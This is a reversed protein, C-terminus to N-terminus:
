AVPSITDGLDGVAVRAHDDADVAYYHDNLGPTAHGVTLRLDLGVGAAYRGIARLGELTAHASFIDFATVHHRLHELMTIQTAGSAIAGDVIACRRFDSPQGVAGLGVVLGEEFHVRKAHPHLNGVPKLWGLKEALIRGEREIGVVLTAPDRILQVDADLRGYIELLLDLYRTRDRVTLRPRNVIQGLEATWQVVEPHETSAIRIGPHLQGDSTPAHLSQLTERSFVALTEFRIDFREEMNKAALAMTPSAEARALVRFRVAPSVLPVMGLRM